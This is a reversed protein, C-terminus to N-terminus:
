AKQIYAWAFFAGTALLVTVSRVAYMRLMGREEANGESVQRLNTFLRRPWILASILNRVAYFYVPNEIGRRVTRWIKDPDKGARTAGQRVETEFEVRNKQYEDMDRTRRRTGVYYMTSALIGYLILIDKAASPLRWSASELIMEIPMCIRDRLEIYEALIKEPMGEFGFHFFTAIFSIVALTTALIGLFQFVAAFVRKFENM